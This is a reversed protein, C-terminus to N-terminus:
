WKRRARPFPTATRRGRFGRIEYIGRVEELVKAILRPYLALRRRVDGEDVEIGWYGIGRDIGERPELLFYERLESTLDAEGQEMLGYGGGTLMYTSEKKSMERGRFMM